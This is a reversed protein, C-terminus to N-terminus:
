RETKSWEVTLRGKYCSIKESCLTFSRPTVTSFSSIHAHTKGSSAWPMPCHILPITNDASSAVLTCSPYQRPYLEQDQTLYHLSHPFGQVRPNHWLATCIEQICTVDRGQGTLTAQSLSYRSTPSRKPSSSITISRNCVPHQFSFPYPNSSPFNIARRRNTWLRSARLIILIHPYTQRLSKRVFIVLALCHINPSIWEPYPLIKLCKAVRKEWYLVARYQLCVGIFDWCLPFHFWSECIPGQPLRYGRLRPHMKQGGEGCSQQLGTGFIAGWGIRRPRWGGDMWWWNKGNKGDQGDQGDGNRVLGERGM